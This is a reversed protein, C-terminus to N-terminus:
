DTEVDDCLEKDFLSVSEGCLDAHAKDCDEPYSYRNEYAVWLTCQHGFIEMVTIGCTKFDAYLFRAEERTSPDQGANLSWDYTASPTESDYQTRITRLCKLIPNPNVDKVAVVDPFQTFLRFADPIESQSSNEGAVTFVPVLMLCLGLVDSVRLGAKAM